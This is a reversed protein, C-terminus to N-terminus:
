GENGDQHCLSWGGVRAIEKLHCSVDQFEVAFTYVSFISFATKPRRVGLKLEQTKADFMPSFCSM